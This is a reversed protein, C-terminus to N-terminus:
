RFYPTDYANVQSVLGGTPAHLWAWDKYRKCEKKETAQRTQVIYIIALVILFCSVLYTHNNANFKM